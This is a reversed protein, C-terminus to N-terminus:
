GTSSFLDLVDKQDQTLPLRDTGPEPYIMSGAWVAKRVSTAIGMKVGGTSLAEMLPKAEFLYVADIVLPRTGGRSTAPSVQPGSLVLYEDVAPDNSVDLIGEQKAYWKINVSRGALPGSRFHGDIAKHTASAMLEIDFIQAAIYEGLHGIQAPRHILESILVDLENRNRLLVALRTLTARDM